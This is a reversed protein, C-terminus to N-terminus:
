EGKKEIEGREEKESLSFSILDQANPPRLEPGVKEWENERGGKTVGSIRKSRGGEWEKRSM